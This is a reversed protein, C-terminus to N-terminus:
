LELIPAAQIAQPTVRRGEARTVIGLTRPHLWMDLKRNLPSVAGGAAEEGGQARECQTLYIM